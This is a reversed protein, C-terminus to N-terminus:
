ESLKVIEFKKTGTIELQQVELTKPNRQSRSKTKRTRMVAVVKAKLPPPLLVQLLGSDSRTKVIGTGILEHPMNM